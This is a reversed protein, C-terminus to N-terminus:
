SKGHAENETVEVLSLFSIKWLSIQPCPLRAASESGPQLQKMQLFQFLAQVSHHQWMGAAEGPHISESRSPGDCALAAAKLHQM